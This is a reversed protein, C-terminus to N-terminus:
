SQYIPEFISDWTTLEDETLVRYRHLKSYDSPAPFILPSNVLSETAKRDAGSQKAADAAIFKASSPVPTVYNISEALTAAIRPQYVFDMWTMAAVPNAAYKPICMNDTWIPAGEKPIVFELSAGSANAQFIDGSWAMSAWLEGQSLPDIYNQQYYQRVIGADRQKTLWAAANKWDAETSTEPNVGIACLASNPLDEIDAFMGVKGAFAQDQLDQWSTLKRGTLKPNYGIGTMGSQWAMTYTNGRDYSPNKVLPSAYKDFNTMRSQDLAVLYGLQMLKSLYIGNTIVMLDYGTPQGAALEPQIVGFFSDDDQIVEDYTVKIGTQKTFQDITPHDSKNNPSVDIYLPWNAFVFHGTNQQGAWYQKTADAGASGTPTAAAGGSVGCAALLAAVGGLGGIKLVTRRSLRQSTLGRLLDVPLDPLDHRDDGNNHEM